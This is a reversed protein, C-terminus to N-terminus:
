RGFVQIEDIMLWGRREFRLRVYRATRPELQVELFTVQPQPSAPESPTTLPTEESWTEGDESTAVAMLPPFYVGGPGGGIVHARVLWVQVPRLLDVTVEPDGRDWGVAKSWWDGPRSVDGDTLKVGDDPYKAQARPKPMLHYRCGLAVNQQGELVEVESLMLWRHAPFRLRVFRAPQPPFDLRLWALENRGEGAPESRLIEKKPEVCALLRWREADESAWAQITRPFDVAAFGGGQCHMRVANIQHVQPLEITVMAAQEWWGVTRGDAFGIETLVGDTLETGGTDPYRPEFAPAVAYPKGRALDRAPQLLVEDWAAQTGSLELVVEDAKAQGCPLRLWDEGKADARVWGSATTESGGALLVARAAAPGDWWGHVLVSDLWWAEGLRFHLRGGNPAFRLAGDADYSRALRGDTLLGAAATANGAALEGEITAPLGLLLRPAPFILVEELGVSAGPAGEIEIRVKRAPRPEFTAVAFGVRWGACPWLEPCPVETAPEFAKGDASTLVRLRDPPTPEGDTAAAVRVRVDGVLEAAGLDVEVVAPMPVIKVRGEQAPRTTWLGDTLGPAAEGNVTCAAGACVSVARRQYTGKHFRYLDDYLRNAEPRNSYYLKAISDQGQYWARAAGKMYGDLEDVGHNLYLQLNLQKGLDSEVGGDIEMEVGLGLARCHTACRSLRDEDPLLAGELRRMFAFNPQMVVFDFGLEAWKDFGPAEFWPIWHFGLGKAHVYDAVAKVVTEDRADVGEMMWYFGWLRLHPYAQPQWRALVQDILWRFAKLRDADNAPNEDIGDGDVDGFNKTARDLYPIMIIVPCVHGPDGLGVGIEEICRNLASLNQHPSFLLDLYYEWDAKVATGNYYAGGSPAGGFMLFLWGDYFWDKPRGGETKDLYAVYPLFDVQKWADRGMYALMIDRMGGSQASNPPCYDAAAM